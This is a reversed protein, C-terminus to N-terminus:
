FPQKPYFNGLSKFNGVFGLDMGGCGSFLSIVKLSDKHTTQSQHLADITDIFLSM